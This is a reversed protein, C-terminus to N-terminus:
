AAGLLSTYLSRLGSSFVPASFREEFRQRAAHELRQRLIGDSLVRDIANAIQPADGPPVLLAEEEDRVDELIGDVGSVVCARGAQLAELLALSGSQESQSPLVFCQAHQLVTFADDVYGPLVVRDSLGLEAARRRHDELRPGGGILCARFHTGRERLLRLAELLIGIGKRPDHNAITVLLPADVPQLGSILQPVPGLESTERLFATESAYPVNVIRPAPGFGEVILRRVSLYNCAVRDAGCYSLREYERTAWQSGWWELRYRWRVATEYRDTVVVGSLKEAAYTTYSSVVVPVALGRARLRAAARVAVAGWIGFGHLIPREASREAFAVVAHELVSAYASIFLQRVPMAGIGSVHLVGYDSLRQGELRGACFLHPAFGARQAGRAHARVYSSHGGGLEDLPDRGAVFLVPSSV